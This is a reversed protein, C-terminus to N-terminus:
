FVMEGAKWPKSLKVKEGLDGGESARVYMERVIDKFNHMISYVPIDQSMAPTVELTFECDKIKITIRLGENTDNIAVVNEDTSM